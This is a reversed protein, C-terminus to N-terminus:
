EKDQLPSNEGVKWGRHKAEGELVQMEKDATVVGDYIRDCILQALYLPYKDAPHAKPIKPVLRTRMRLKPTNTGRSSSFNSATSLNTSCRLIRTGPTSAKRFEVSQIDQITSTSKQKKRKTQIGRTLNPTRSQRSRTDITASLRASLCTTADTVGESLESIPSVSPIEGMYSVRSGEAVRQSRRRGLLDEGHLAVFHVEKEAVAKLKAVTPSIAKRRNRPTGVKGEPTLIARSTSFKVKTQTSHCSKLTSIPRVTNDHSSNVTSLSLTTVPSCNRTVNLSPMQVVICDYVQEDIALRDKCVKKDKIPSSSLSIQSAKRKM